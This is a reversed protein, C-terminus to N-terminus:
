ENSNEKPFIVSLVLNEETLTKLHENIDNVTITDIVPNFDFNDFNNFMAELNASAVNEPSNFSRIHSSKAIIKQRNFDDININNIM